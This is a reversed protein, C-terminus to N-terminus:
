YGVGKSRIEFNAPSNEFKSIKPITASFLKKYTVTIALSTIKESTALFTSYTEPTEVALPSDRIFGM